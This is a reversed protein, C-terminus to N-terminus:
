FAQNVDVTSATAQVQNTTRPKAQRDKEYINIAWQCDRYSHVIAIEIIKLKLNIDAKAYTNLNTQFIELQKKSLYGKTGAFMTDVWNILAERVADNSEVISNKINQIIISRKSIQTEKKSKITAKKSISTLLSLDDNTTLSVMLPIDLRIQDVSSPNIGTVGVSALKKDIEYQDEETLTTQNFIYKRDVKFYGDDDLKRKNIAKRAINIIESWYVATKLGFVHAIKINYSNYSDSSVLDLYM